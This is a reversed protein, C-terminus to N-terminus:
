KKEDPYLSKLHILLIESLRLGNQTQWSIAFWNRELVRINGNWNREPCGTIKSSFFLRSNYSNSPTPCLLADVTIPSCHSPLQLGEILIYNYGGEQATSLNPTIKKLESIQNEDYSM